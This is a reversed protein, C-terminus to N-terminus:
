SLWVGGNVGITQGTVYAADPSMLWVIVGAVDEGTGHRRLPVSERVRTVQEEFTTGCAAASARLEAWHMSTAMHGPAVTNVRIRHRALELALSHTLLAIGAKSACYAAGRAVGQQGFISGINVIAGGTNQTIMVRAAARCALFTGVLNVEIVRQFDALSTDVVCTSPGGIGANNVLVDIGGLQGAAESVAATCAAEDSIDAILGVVSVEPRIRSLRGATKEVAPDVDVLAVSNGERALRDAIAAGLGRAAGTVIARM